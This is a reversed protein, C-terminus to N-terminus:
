QDHYRIVAILNGRPRHYSDSLLQGSESYVIRRTKTFSGNEYHDDMFPCGNKYYLIRRVERGTKPDYHVDYVTFIFGASFVNRIAIGTSKDTYVGFPVLPPIPPMTSAKNNMPLTNSNKM